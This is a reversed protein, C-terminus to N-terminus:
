TTLDDIIANPINIADNATRWTQVKTNLESLLDTVIANIDAWVSGVIEVSNYEGDLKVHSEAPDYFNGGSTLDADYRKQPFTTIGQIEDTVLTLTVAKIFDNSTGRRKYYGKSIQAEFM